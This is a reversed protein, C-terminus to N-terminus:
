STPETKGQVERLFAEEAPSLPRGKLRELEDRSLGGVKQRHRAMALHARAISAVMDEFTEFHVPAREPHARLLETIRAEHRRVIEELPTQLPLREIRAEPPPELRDVGHTNSTVLFVGQVESVLEIVRLNRPYLQVLQLMSLVIGRPHLHYVSARIMSGADVFLRLFTRNQPYIRTLTLDEVDAIWRYGRREFAGRARDYFELDAEPFAAPSVRALEHPEGYVADLRARLAAGGFGRPRRMGLAIAVVLWLGMM